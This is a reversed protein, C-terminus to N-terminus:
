IKHWRYYTQETVELGRSVQAVFRGQALGMEAGRQKTIIQEPTHRRRTM